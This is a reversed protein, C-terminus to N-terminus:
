PFMRRRREADVGAALERLCRGLLELDEDSLGRDMAISLGTSLEALNASYESIEFRDRPPVQELVATIWENAPPM